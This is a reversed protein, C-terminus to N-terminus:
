PATLRQRRRRPGSSATALRRAPAARGPWDDLREANIEILHRDPDTLYLQPYGTLARPRALLHM